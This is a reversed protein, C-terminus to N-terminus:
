KNQSIYDTVSQLAKDLQGETNHMHPSLRIGGGRHACIVGQSMLWRWLTSYDDVGAVRFTFIGAHHADAVPTIVEFRKDEATKDFLYRIKKLIEKLINEVGVEEILSLSASLGHIGLMNPSGCEFRRGDAALSWTKSDYDGPNALNHWGFQHISLQKRVAPRSYFLAVGEPGLLWKHGDAAVFDAQIAEVDFPIVGLSQIADVCFLTDTRRCHEGLRELDLRIGSAYHVSSVALLRTKATVAAILDATPDASAPDLEIGCFEVGRDALSEWVVRNSPFDNAIGVIQEGPQLNLGYAVLSLGESTNKLLSIDDAGANILRAFKERLRQEVTMWAPYDAAGRWRNQKAFDCIARETRVPWPAVAAHNLYILDDDLVFAQQGDTM